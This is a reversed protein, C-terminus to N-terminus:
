PLALRRHRTLLVTLGGIAVGVGVALPTRWTLASVQWLVGIGAAIPLWSALRASRSVLAGSATVVGIAMLLSMSSVVGWQGSALAMTAAAREVARTDLTGFTVFTFGIALLFATLGIPIAILPEAHRDVGTDSPTGILASSAVVGAWGAFVVPLSSGLAVFVLFCLSSALYSSMRVSPMRPERALPVSAYVHAFAAYAIVALLLMSSQSDLRLGWPVELIGMADRTAVPLKPIWDGLVDVREAGGSPLRQQAVMARVALAASVLLAVASVGRALIPSWARDARGEVSLALNAVAAVAPFLPILWLSEM